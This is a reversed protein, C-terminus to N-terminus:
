AAAENLYNIVSDFDFNELEDYANQLEDRAAEAAAGKDGTQFSEPMNDYYEQEEDILTDIRSVVSDIDDRLGELEEILAAIAKRRDKNM